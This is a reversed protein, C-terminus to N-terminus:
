LEDKEEEKPAFKNLVNVKVQIEDRKSAALGGKALIGQLRTLEKAVFKENKNLKDFVRVYYDAFKAEATGKLKAVGDKIETVAESLSIGGLFKAVIADLSAVTGAKENLDGGETRFTGAKENIYNVFDIEQRGGDYELPKKSGAPFFKITPYGTVGQEQAVAKSDAGEADVKAIVVNEDGAFDTAVKEWTPALNKCHGCWPATFSVLVNKDGGITEYFSKNNLMAVNSPLEGKKKPKVGTKETIFKTLSDIDRGSKYEQPEKSKGDFFKLTPFGQIGFRKGLDRESDADVKAIQVKDKAHEFSVALEEYVPALNKCHGCWPAFFEVLTPKGSFVLKDFNSPILDIVASKAAVSGALAALVLSKILVM